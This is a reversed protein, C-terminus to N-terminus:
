IAVGWDVVVPDIAADGKRNKREEAHSCGGFFKGPADCGAKEDADVGDEAAGGEETKSQSEEETEIDCGRLDAIVDYIRQLQNEDDWEDASGATDKVGRRHRERCVLEHVGGPFM